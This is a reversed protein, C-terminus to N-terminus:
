CVTPSTTPSGDSTTRTADWTARESGAGPGLLSRRHGSQHSEGQHHRHRSPRRHPAQRHVLREAGAHHTPRLLCDHHQRCPPRGLDPRGQQQRGRVRDPDHRPRPGPKAKLKWTSTASCSGSTGVATTGGSAQAPAITALTSLAVCATAALTLSRSTKMHHRWLHPGPRTGPPTSSTTLSRRTPDRDGTDTPGVVAVAHMHEPPLLVNTRQRVRGAHHWQPTVPSCWSPMSVSMHSRTSGGLPSTGDLLGRPIRVDLAEGERAASNWPYAASLQDM